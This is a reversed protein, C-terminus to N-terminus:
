KDNVSKNSARMKAQMDRKRRTAAQEEKIREKKERDLERETTGRPTKPQFISYVMALLMVEVIFVGIGVILQIQPLPLTRTTVRADIFQTIPSSLAYAILGFAILLLLGFVPLFPKLWSKKKPAYKGGFKNESM